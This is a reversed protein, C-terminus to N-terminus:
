LNFFIGPIICLPLKGPKFFLVPDMPDRRTSIDNGISFVKKFSLELLQLFEAGPINVLQM